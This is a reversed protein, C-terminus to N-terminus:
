ITGQHVKPHCSCCLTQLNDPHMNLKDNDIHHLVLKHKYKEFSGDASLNCIECNNKRCSEKFEKDNWVGCYGRNLIPKMLSISINMKQEETRKVGTRSIRSKEIHEKTLKKGKHAESMKKRTEESHKNGKLAIANSRGIKRKHEETLFQRM